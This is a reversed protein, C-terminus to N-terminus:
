LVIVVTTIPVIASLVERITDKVEKM